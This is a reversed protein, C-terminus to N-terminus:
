RDMEPRPNEPESPGPSWVLTGERKGCDRVGRMVTRPSCGIEKAIERVTLGRRRLRRTHERQEATLHAAM